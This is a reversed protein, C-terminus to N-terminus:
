QKPAETEKPAIAQTTKAPKINKTMSSARSNSKCCAKSTNSCAAKADKNEAVPVSGANTYNESLTTTTTGTAQAKDGTCSKQCAPSASHCQKAADAAVAEKKDPTATANTTQAKAVTLNIFLGIAIISLLKKM